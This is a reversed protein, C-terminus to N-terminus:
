AKILSLKNFILQCDLRDCNGQNSVGLYFKNKESFLEDKAVIPIEMQFKINKNEELTGEILRYEDWKSVRVGDIYIYYKSDKLRDLENTRIILEITLTDLKLNMSAEIVEFSLLRPSVIRGKNKMEVVDNMISLLQNTIYRSDFSESLKPANLSMQKLNNRNTLLEIMVEALESINGNAVLKGNWGDKILDKPGYKFDYAIVPTGVMLSELVSYPLGEYESTIVSFLSESMEKTPNNTYGKLYIMNDLKMDTILKQLNEKEKGDGYIDVILNPFKHKIKDVAKIIHELRKLKELRSVLVIREAKGEFNNNAHIKEIPNRVTYINSTVGYRIQLDRKQEHTLTLIAGYKPISKVLPEVYTNTEAASTYPRRLHTSHIISISPINGNYPNDMVTHDLNRVESFFFPNKYQKSISAIWYDQLDSVTDFVKRIRGEVIWSIYNCEGNVYRYILYESGDERYMVTEASEGSEQYYFQTRRKVNQHDFVTNSVLVGDVYKKESALSGDIRLSIVTKVAGEVTSFVRDKLKSFLADVSYPEPDELKFIEEGAYFEYINKLELRSDIMRNSKIKELINRYDTKFNTTLVFLKNSYDSLLNVKSFTAKTRGGFNESFSEAIFFLDYKEDLM